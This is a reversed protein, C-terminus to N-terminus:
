YSSRGWFRVSLKRRQCAAQSDGSDLMEGTQTGSSSSSSFSLQDQTVVPHPSALALPLRWPDRQMEWTEQTERTEWTEQGALMLGFRSCWTPSVSTFLLLQLCLHLPLSMWSEWMQEWGAPEAEQMTLAATLQVGAAVATAHRQTVTQLPIKSSRQETLFM